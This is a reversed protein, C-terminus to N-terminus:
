TRREPHARDAALTQAACCGRAASLARRVRLDAAEEAAEGRRDLARRARVSGPQRDRRRGRGLRDDPAAPPVLRHRRPEAPGLRLVDDGLAPDAHDRREREWARPDGSAALQGAHVQAARLSPRHPGVDTPSASAQRTPRSSAGPLSFTRPCSRGARSSRSPTRAGGEREGIRGHRLTGGAAGPHGRLQAVAVLDAPQRAVDAGARRTVATPSSAGDILVLGSLDRGGPRGNFDWTAYATAISGGLSHGGM